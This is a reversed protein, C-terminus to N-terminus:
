TTFRAALPRLLTRQWAGTLAPIKEAPVGRQVLELRTGGEEPYLRIRLTMVDDTEAGAKAVLQEGPATHDGNGQANPRPREIRWDKKWASTELVAQYVDLPIAAYWAQLQLNGTNKSGLGSAALAAQTREGRQPDKRYRGAWQAWRNTEDKRARLQRKRRARRSLRTADSGADEASTPQPQFTPQGLQAKRM